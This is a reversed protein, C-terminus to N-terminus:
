FFVILSVMVHRQHFWPNRAAPKIEQNRSPQKAVPEEKKKCEHEDTLDVEAPKEIKISQQKKQSSKNESNKSIDNTEHEPKTLLDTGTTIARKLSSNGFNNSSNENKGSILKLEEIKEDRVAIERRLKSNERQLSEKEKRVELLQRIKKDRDTVNSKLKANEVLLSEKQSRIDDLKAELESNKKELFHVFKLAM